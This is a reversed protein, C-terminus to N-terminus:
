MKLTYCEPTKKKNLENWLDMLEDEENIQDGVNEKKVLIFSSTDILHFTQKITCLLEQWNATKSVDTVRGKEDLANPRFTAQEDGYSEIVFHKAQIKHSRIKLKKPAKRGNKNQQLRNKLLSAFVLLKWTKKKDLIKKQLSTKDHVYLNLRILEQLAHVWKQCEQPTKTELCLAFDHGNPDTSVICIACDKSVKRLPPQSNDNVIQRVSKLSLQKTAKKGKPDELLLLECSHDIRVDGHKRMITGATLLRLNSKDIRDRLPITYYKHTQAFATSKLRLAKEFEHWEKDLPEYSNHRSVIDQFVDYAHTRLLEEGTKADTLLLNSLIRLYRAALGKREVNARASNVLVAVAGRKVLVRSCPSFLSLKSLAMAANGLFLSNEPFAEVAKLLPVAGGHIFCQANDEVGCCNAIVKILENMIDIHMWNDNDSCLNVMLEMIGQRTVMKVADPTSIIKCLAQCGLALIAPKKRHDDLLQSLAQCAGSEALTNAIDRNAALLSLVKCSLSMLSEEFVLDKMIEFVRFHGKKDLFTVANSPESLLNGICGLCSKQIDIEDPYGKSVALVLDLVGLQIMVNSVKDHSSLNGLVIVGMQILARQHTNKQMTDMVVAVANDKILARVNDAVYALNALCRLAVVVVAEDGDNSCSAFQQLCQITAKAGGSQCILVKNGDNNHCLNVLVNLASESLCNVVCHRKVVGVIDGIGGLDIVQTINDGNNLTLNSLIFCCKDLLEIDLPHGRITTVVLQILGHM